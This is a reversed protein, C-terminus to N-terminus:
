RGRGRGNVRAELSEDIDVIRVPLKQYPRPELGQIQDFGLLKLRQIPSPNLNSILISSRFVLPTFKIYNRITM